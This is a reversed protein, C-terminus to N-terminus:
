EKGLSFLKSNTAKALMQGHGKGSPRVGQATTSASSTAASTRCDSYPRQGRHRGVVELLLLEHPCVSLHLRLRPFALLFHIHVRHPLSLIRSSSPRTYLMSLVVSIALVAIATNRICIASGLPQSRYRSACGDLIAYKMCQILNRSISRQMGLVVDVLVCKYGSRMQREQIHGSGVAVVDYM